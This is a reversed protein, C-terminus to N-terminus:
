HVVWIRTDEDDKRCPAQIASNGPFTLFCMPSTCCSETYCVVSSDVFSNVRNLIIWAGRQLVRKWM